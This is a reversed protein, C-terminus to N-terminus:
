PSMTRRAPPLATREATSGFNLTVGSRLRFQDLTWATADPRDRDDSVFAVDGWFRWRDNFL